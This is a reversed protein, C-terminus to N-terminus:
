WKSKCQESKSKCQVTTTWFMQSCQEGRINSFCSWFDFIAVFCGFLCFLNTFLFDYWGLASVLLMKSANSFNEAFVLFSNETRVWLSQRREKLVNKISNDGKQSSFKHSKLISCQIKSRKKCLCNQKTKRWNSFLDYSPGCNQKWLNLKTPSPNPYVPGWLISSYIM